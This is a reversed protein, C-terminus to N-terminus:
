SAERSTIDFNGKCASLAGQERRARGNRRVGLRTRTAHSVGCVVVLSPWRVGRIELEVLGAGIRMQVGVGDDRRAVKKVRVSLRERWGALLRM